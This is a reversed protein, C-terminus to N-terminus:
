TSGSPRNRDRLRQLSHRLQRFYESEAIERVQATRAHQDIRVPHRIRLRASEASQAVYGVLAASALRSLATLLQQIHDSYPIKRGWADHANAFELVGLLEDDVRLLPISIHSTTTFGLIADRLQVSEPIHSESEASLAVLKRTHAATAAPLADVNDLRLSDFPHPKPDAGGLQIGLTANLVVIPELMNQETRLYLTGSDSQSLLRGGEVIKLLLRGLNRESFLETGIPIVVELLAQLQRKEVQLQELMRRESDRAFKRDLSSCVRARLVTPDFPKSLFDDAGLDICRVVSDLDNSASIVIVPTRRLINEDRMTELVDFGNMQPMMIDLLVLDFSQERLARLADSGNAAEETVCGLWQLRQALVDRNLENDDVVLVRGSLTRDPITM